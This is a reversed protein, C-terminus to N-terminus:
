ISISLGTSTMSPFVPEITLISGASLGDNSMVISKLELTSPTCVAWQSGDWIYASSIPMHRVNTKKWSISYRKLFLRMFPPSTSLAITITSCGTVSSCSSWIDFSKLTGARSIRSLPYRLLRCSRKGFSHALCLSRSRMPSIRRAPPNRLALTVATLDPCVILVLAARATRSSM